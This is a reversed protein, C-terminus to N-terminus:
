IRLTRLSSGTVLLHGDQADMKQPITKSFFFSAGKSSRCPGFIMNWKSHFNNSSIWLENFISLCTPKDISANLLLNVFMANANNVGMELATSKTQVLELINDWCELCRESADSMNFKVYGGVVDVGIHTQGNYIPDLGCVGHM